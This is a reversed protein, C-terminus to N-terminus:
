ISIMLRSQCHSQLGVGGTPKELCCILLGDFSYLYYLKYLIRVYFYSVEHAVRRGYDPGLLPVRRKGPDVHCTRQSNGVRDGALSLNRASECPIGPIRFCGFLLADMFPLDKAHIKVA